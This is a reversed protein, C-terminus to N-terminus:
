DEIQTRDYWINRHKIQTKQAVKTPVRKAFILLRHSNIFIPTCTMLTIRDQGPKVYLHDYEAHNNPDIVQQGIVKYSLKDGFVNLYIIDGKKLHKINDFYIQNALGSHGTLVSLTNKGGTPLSSWALNGIGKELM